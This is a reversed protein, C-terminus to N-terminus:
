CINVTGKCKKKSCVGSMCTAGANCPSGDRCNMNKKDCPSYQTSDEQSDGSQQSRYTSSLIFQDVINSIFM